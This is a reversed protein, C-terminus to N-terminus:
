DKRLTKKLAKHRYLSNDATGYLSAIDLGDEPILAVGSSVGIDQNLGIKRGILSLRKALLARAGDATYDPDRDRCFEDGGLRTFCCYNEPLKELEGRIAALVKDGLPHGYSDNLQKFRDIDFIIFAMKETPHDKIMRDMRIKGANRSLLGTLSDFDKQYLDTVDESFFCAYRHGKEEHFRVKIRFARREGDIGYYLDFPARSLASELLAPLAMKRELLERYSPAVRDLFHPFYDKSYNGQRYIKDEVADEGLLVQFFRDDTLDIETYFVALSGVTRLSREFLGYGEKATLALHLENDSLPSISVVNVPEGDLFIPAFEIQSIQETDVDYFRRPGNLRPANEGFIAEAKVGKELKPFIKKAGDNFDICLGEQNFLAYNRIGFALSKDFSEKTYARVQVKSDEPIDPSANLLFYRDAGETKILMASVFFHYLEMAYRFALRQPASFEYFPLHGELFATVEKRTEPEIRDLLNEKFFLKEDGIHSIIDLARRNLAVPELSDKRYRFVGSVISSNYFLYYANSKQDLLENLLQRADNGEDRVIEAKKNVIKEFDPIPMPKAFFFGQIYRVGLTAFYGADDEKEVGEVIIPITLARALAVISEIIKRKKRSSESKGLFKYDLKLADVDLNKLSAFSSKGSGFDDMLVRIGYSHCKAIFSIMQAEYDVYASETVEIDILYPAIGAEEIIAITKEFLNPDAFDTRSYNVSLPVVDKKGEKIWKAQLSCVEKLMYLDLDHCLGNNEFLPIFDSPHVLEGDIEWRVLAEGSYFTKTSLDYRPQIYIKFERDEIGKLFRDTLMKEWSEQSAIKDDYIVIWKSPDQKASLHAFSVKLSAIRYDTDYPTLQYIGFAMQIQTEPHLARIEQLISQAEIAFNEALGTAIVLFSDTSSKRCVMSDPYKKRLIDAIEMLLRDGKEVGYSRSYTRFRVFDFGMMVMPLGEHADQFIQFQAEAVNTWPLKTLPDFYLNNYLQGRYILTGIANAAFDGLFLDFGATKSMPNGLLLFGVHKGEIFFPILLVTHINSKALNDRLVPDFAAFGELDECLLSYGYQFFNTSSNDWYAPFSVSSKKPEEGTRYATLASQRNPKFTILHAEPCHYYEMTLEVVNHILREHNRKGEKPVLFDSHIEERIKKEIESIVRRLAADYSFPGNPKIRKAVEVVAKTGDFEKLFSDITLFRSDFAVKSTGLAKLEDRYAKNKYLSKLTAAEEVIIIDDFADYDAVNDVQAYKKLDM